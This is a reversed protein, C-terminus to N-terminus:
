KFNIFFEPLFSEYLKIVPKNGLLFESYRTISNDMLGVDFDSRTLDFNLNNTRQNFILKGLFENELFHDPVMGILDFFDSKIISIAHMLNYIDDHIIIERFIYYDKDNNIKIINQNLIKLDVKKFKNELISTMSGKDFFIEVFNDCLDLKDLDLVHFNINKYM